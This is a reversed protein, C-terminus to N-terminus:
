NIAVIECYYPIQLYGTGIDNLWLLFWELFYFEITVVNVVYM